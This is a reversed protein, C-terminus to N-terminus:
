HSLHSSVASRVPRLVMMNQAAQELTAQYEDEQKASQVDPVLPFNRDCEMDNRKTPSPWIFLRGILLLFVQLVLLAFELYKAM